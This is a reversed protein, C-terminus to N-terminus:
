CDAVPRRQEIQVDRLEGIVVLGVRRRGPTIMGKSQSDGGLTQQGARFQVGFYFAAPLSWAQM